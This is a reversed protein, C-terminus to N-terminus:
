RKKVSKGLGDLGAVAQAYTNYISVLLHHEAPMPTMGIDRRQDICPGFPNSFTGICPLKIQEAITIARRHRRSWVCGALILRAARRHERTEFM